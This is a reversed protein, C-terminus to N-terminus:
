CRCQNDVRVRQTCAHADYVSTVCVVGTCACVTFRRSSSMAVLLFSWAVPACTGPWAHGFAPQMKM